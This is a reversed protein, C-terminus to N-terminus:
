KACWTVDCFCMKTLAMKWKRLTILLYFVNRAFSLCKPSLYLAMCM